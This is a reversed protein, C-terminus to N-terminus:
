FRANIGVRIGMSKYFSEIEGNSSCVWGPCDSELNKINIAVPDGTEPNLMASEDNNWKNQLLTNYINMYYSENLYTKADADSVTYYDYTLGVTLMIRDTLATKWNAGLGFHFASGISAKDEVSKPHQWDFRYPQDGEATYGPLGLEMRANVANNQNIDYDVDLALYPGSWLVEYSHSTGPQQYYYTGATGVHTAGNHVPLQDTIKDRWIVSQKGNADYFIIIPDCQIEDSGEVKFCAATDVSLGYNKKTELKYKFYRYGISPTIRANGWKFFDTLGFGINFGLMDGGDSTGISLAHGLQEGIVNNNQDVWQTIFYGGNTIDDDVMTTEGAQMGYKLGATVQMATNDASFNYGGSLDFVNWSVDDYHLISKSENMEFQWKATERSIGADLFFGQKSKNGVSAARPASQTAATQTRSTTAAAGNPRTSAYSSYGGQAPSPNTRVYGNTQAYGRQMQSYGTQTYRAQPSQYAGTYYTGAAGAATPALVALSCKFLVHSLKKM